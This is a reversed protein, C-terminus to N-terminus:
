AAEQDRRRNPWTRRPIEIVEPDRGEAIAREREYQRVWKRIANDSVGYRRGVALYGLQRIEAVLQDRPPREVKRLHPQPKGRLATGERRQQEHWCARSCHWQTRAPAIFSKGCVRCSRPQPQIRSVVGKNKRGCHTELTAACNPCLIRLNELRNDDHVGNVHDLIMAMRKGRWTERQGCTECIPQKLGAAYLRNKLHSRTYTSGKVLIQELPIRGRRNAEARVSNADFHEASIGWREAYRQVTRHNGGAPRYGLRRLAESWTRSAGVAERLEDETFRIRRGPMYAFTHECGPRVYVSGTGPHPLRCGPDSQIILLLNSDEGRFELNSNTGVAHRTPCLFSARDSVQHRPAPPTSLRAAPHDPAAPRHRSRGLRDPYGRAELRSRPV